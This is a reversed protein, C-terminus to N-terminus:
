SVRRGSVFRKVEGGPEPDAKPKAKPEPADQVPEQELDIGFTRQLWGVAKGWPVAAENDGQKIWVEREDEAAARKAARHQELLAREEDDLEDAM